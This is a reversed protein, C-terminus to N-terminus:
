LKISLLPTRQRAFKRVALPAKIKDPRPSNPKAKIYKATFVTLEEGFPLPGPLFSIFDLCSNHCDVEVPLDKQFVPLLVVAIGEARGPVFYQFDDEISGHHAILLDKRIGGVRILGHYHGVRENAVVAHRFLIVLRRVGTDPRQDYPLVIVLRGVEAACRGQPFNHLFITNDAYTAHVGTFQVPADPVEAAAPRQDGVGGGRPFFSQVHQFFAAEGGIGNGPYAPFGRLFERCLLRTEM